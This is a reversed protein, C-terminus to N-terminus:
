TRRCRRLKTRAPVGACARRRGPPHDGAPERWVHPVEGRERVGYRDPSRTASVLRVAYQVLSPDVYGSRCQASFRRFAPRHDDGRSVAAAPGTVRNVIVFEEEESPYGVLVKMMFRDVQAEPM